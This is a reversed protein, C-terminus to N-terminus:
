AVPLEVIFQAGKGGGKSEASIKGGHAEVVRKAIYLGYGTSHVNVKLSDKGHGGETFLNKMDEPTIGVGNDEVTFRLKEGSRILEVRIAGKPTYKIANDILNRIAHQKLKHEDGVTKFEGDGIVADLSVGKEDASPKLDSIVQLVSAKFDFPEKKYNVSGKKLDSASLIDMVTSVGKRVNALADEAMTKVQAPVAGFDGEVISAFGAQSETLYGKVEHSIFHLLTEQERNVQELEKEQKEIFKRQEIEKKVARILVLGVAGTLVLTVAILATNIVSDTFTFMSGILVVLAIVLAQAGILAVNFTRFRVILIGIFVMFIMMGFLGYLELRSDDFLGVATLYTALFLLTFFSFLFLEIGMGMLVIQKRFDPASIRYKRALLILIWVMAIVSLGIYYMKYFLGEFQFADCNTIDFGSINLSTAGFILAPALLALLVMKLKFSIDKKYLFVYIFYVSFVSIFSFLVTYFTWFLLLTDSHINTWLVMNSFAWLSFCISIVLLLRNLLVKPGNLFVFFGVLLAVVTAPIHSYYLLEPIDSSFLFFTTPPFLNCIM